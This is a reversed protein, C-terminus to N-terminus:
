LPHPDHCRGILRSSLASGGRHCLCQNLFAIAECCDSIEIGSEIQWDVLRRLAPEDIAGDSSFPTVLATYAGKWVDTM